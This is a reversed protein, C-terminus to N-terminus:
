EEPPMILEATAERILQAAKHNEQEKLANHIRDVEERKNFRLLAYALTKASAPCHWENAYALLTELVEARREDPIASQSLIFVAVRRAHDQIALREAPIEEADLLDDEVYNLVHTFEDYLRQEKTIQRHVAYLAETMLGNDNPHALAVSCMTTICKADSETPINIFGLMRLLIFTVSHIRIGLNELEQKCEVSGDKDLLHVIVEHPRFNLCFM